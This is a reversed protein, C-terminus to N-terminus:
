YAITSLMIDGTMGHMCTGLHDISETLGPEQWLEPPYERTFRRQIGAKEVLPFPAKPGRKDAGTPALLLSVGAEFRVSLVANYM